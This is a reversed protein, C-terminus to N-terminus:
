GVSGATTCTSLLITSFRGDINACTLRMVCWCPIIFRAVHISDRTRIKRLSRGEPGVLLTVEQM